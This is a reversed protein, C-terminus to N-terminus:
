AHRKTFADLRRYFVFELLSLLELHSTFELLSKRVEFPRVHESLLVRVPVNPNMGLHQSQACFEAISSFDCSLHQADSTRRGFCREPNVRGAVRTARVDSNFVQVRCLM